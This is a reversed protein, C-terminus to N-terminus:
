GSGGGGRGARERGLPRASQRGRVRGPFQRGCSGTSHSLMILRLGMFGHAMTFTVVLVVVGFVVVVLEYARARGAGVVACPASLWAPPVCPIFPCM